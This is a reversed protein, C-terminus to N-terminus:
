PIQETKETEEIDEDQSTPIQNLQNETSTSNPPTSEQEAKAPTSGNKRAEVTEKESKPEGDITEADADDLFGRGIKYNTDLLTILKDIVRFDEDYDNMGDLFGFSKDLRWLRSMAAQKLVDPVGGQMFPKFDSDAELSDITQLGHDKALADLDEPEDDPAMEHEGDNKSESEPESQLIVNDPAVKELPNKPMNGVPLSLPPTTITHLPDQDPDEAFTILPGRKLPPAKRRSEIKRRSWRSLQTEDNNTM